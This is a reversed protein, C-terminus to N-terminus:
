LSFFRAKIASVLKKYFRSVNENVYVVGRHECIDARSRM